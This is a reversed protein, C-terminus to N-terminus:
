AGKMFVGHDDRMEKTGYLQQVAVKDTFYDLDYMHGIKPHVQMVAAVASKHFIGNDHGAANTGEVNSTSYFPVDAIYHRLYGNKVKLPSGERIANYSENIYKEDRMMQMREKPSVVAAIDSEPVNADLLQQYGDLWDEYDLPVTLTGEDQTFDDVMGALVDDFDLGLAYGLKGAYMELQDRDAQVDVIDEVAIAAYKYTSITIDTASETQTEYTIATNASKARASLDSVSNVHITAGMRMVDSEFKRDMLRGFVLESERAVITHASWIEPIFVAATTVDIFEEAGTAM